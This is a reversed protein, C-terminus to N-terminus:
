VCFPLQNVGAGRKALRGLKYLRILGAEFKEFETLSSAPTHTYNPRVDAAVGNLFGAVYKAIAQPNSTKGRLVHNKGRLFASVQKLSVKATVDHRIDGFGDIRIIVKNNESEDGTM